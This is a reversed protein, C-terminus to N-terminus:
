ARLWPSMAKGLTRHAQINGLMAYKRGVRFLHQHLMDPRQMLPVVTAHETYQESGLHEISHPHPPIAILSQALSAFTASGRPLFPNPVEHCSVILRWQILAKDAM